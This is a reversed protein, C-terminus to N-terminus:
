PKAELIQKARTVIEPTEKLECLESLHKVIYDQDLWDAQRAAIGEADVWDRTRAAFAKMVFLDEASCTPLVVDPAFEFPTARRMMAEEFPLAGFSVDVDRGNSARILLVRNRLAFDLAGDIRSEFRQLLARAFREEDGFGTLLSIDADQTTRPEGWRLVALGGIVCCTWSEQSMFDCVDQAARLLANM